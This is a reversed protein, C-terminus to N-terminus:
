NALCFSNGRCSLCLNVTIPTIVKSLGFKAAKQFCLSLRKWNGKEYHTHIYNIFESNRHKSFLSLFAGMFSIYLERAIKRLVVPRFGGLLDTSDTQLSLNLVVLEQGASEALRQVTSTKGCGTEGVLLTPEGQHVCRCLSEM